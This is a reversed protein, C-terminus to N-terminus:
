EGERLDSVATDDFEEANTNRRNSLVTSKQVFSAMVLSKGEPQLQDEEQCLICTFTVETLVPAARKPGLAVTSVEGADIMLSSSTDESTDMMLGESSEKGNKEDKATAGVEFMKANEKMFNKQAKAMQEMIKRRREAALRKKESEPDSIAAGIKEDSNLQCSEGQKPGEYIGAVRKWKSIVWYLLHKHSEIRQSGVLRELLKLTDFKTARITFDFLTAENDDSEEGMEMKGDEKNKAKLSSNMQQAREEELLSLGILHLVRHVQNESFCKSMLNDARELVLSLLYIYVDCKMIDLIGSFQKTLQPPLPPPNCEPLNAM